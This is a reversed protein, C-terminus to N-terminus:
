DTPSDLFMDAMEKDIEEAENELEKKVQNLKEIQEKIIKKTEPVSKEVFNKSGVDVIMEDSVLKTKVFIGRGLPALVEKGVSNKIEDMDFNLSNLDIINKEVLQSQQGLLEMNREFMGLKYLLEQSMELEKEKEQKGM